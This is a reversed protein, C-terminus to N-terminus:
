LSQIVIDLRPALITTIETGEGVDTAGAPLKGNFNEVTGKSEEPLDAATQRATRDHRGSHRRRNKSSKLMWMAPIISLPIAM